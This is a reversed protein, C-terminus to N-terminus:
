AEGSRAAAAMVEAPAPRAHWLEFQAAAQAIFMALGSIVECGRERAAHLLRTEAPRYVTDFVVMGPRLAEDPVPTDAVAPWMGLPTCNILVDGTCDLRAAWPKDDCRLDQALRQARPASRSCVTVRGGENQLASIIARAVGGAGLVDVRLGRLGSERCRVTSHLACVAAPGDTNEGTWTGDARRLLTNVAGCRRALPGIAFGHTELWRLAHEKHPLTVSLGAVDLGREHHVHDMFASWAIFEPQVPFPVYVADINTAALAANHVAPSLSPSVPWGAVGYVRTDPGLGDWRYISRLDHITPQGSASPHEPTLSAFTLRAGFKRALVRTALGAEGMALAIMARRAARARLQTLVRSADTTDRATFVAKIVDAPTATLEDFIPALDAPTEQLDHHSLILQTRRAATATPRLVQGVRKRLARSRQWTAYEVDLYDPRLAALEELLAIRESEDGTWAGGEAASRITVLVPLGRPQALLARVAPVNAICDGRLEVLDAGAAQAARLQADLPPDASVLPIAILTSHFM